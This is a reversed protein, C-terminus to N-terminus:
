VHNIVGLEKAEDLLFGCAISIRNSYKEGFVETYSNIIATARHEEVIGKWEEWIVYIHLKPSDSNLVPNREEIIIPVFAESYAKPEPLLGKKLEESIKQVFFYHKDSTPRKAIIQYYPM